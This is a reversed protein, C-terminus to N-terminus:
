IYIYILSNLLKKGLLVPQAAVHGFKEKFFTQCKYDTDVHSFLGTALTSPDFTGERSMYLQSQEECMFRLSDIIDSVAERGLNYKAKLKLVFAADSALHATTSPGIVPVNAPVDDDDPWETALM